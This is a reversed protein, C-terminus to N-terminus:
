PLDLITPSFSRQPGIYILFVIPEKKKMNNKDQSKTEDGIKGM